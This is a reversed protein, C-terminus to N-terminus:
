TGDISIDEEICVSEDTYPYVGLRPTHMVKIAKNPSEPIIWANWAMRYRVYQIIGVMVKPQMPSTIPQDPRKHLLRFTRRKVGKRMCILVVINLGLKILAAFKVIRPTMIRFNPYRYLQNVGFHHANEKIRSTEYASRARSRIINRVTSRMERM